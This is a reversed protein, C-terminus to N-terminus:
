IAETISQKGWACAECSCNGVCDAHHNKQCKACKQEHQRAYEALIRKKEKATLEKLDALARESATEKSWGHSVHQATLIAHLKLANKARNASTKYDRNNGLGM